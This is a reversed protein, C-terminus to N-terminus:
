IGNVKSINAVAVGNIKSYVTVGNIKKSYGSPPAGEGEFLVMIWSSKSNSLSEMDAYDLYHKYYVSFDTTASFVSATSMSIYDLPSSTEKSYMCMTQITTSNVIIDAVGLAYAASVTSFGGALVLFNGATSVTTTTTARTEPTITINQDITATDADAYGSLSFGDERFCLVRTEGWYGGASSERIAEVEILRTAGGTLSQRTGFSACCQQNANIGERCYYGTTTTLLPYYTGVVSLRSIASYSTSNSAISMAGLVFYNGTSSPTFNVRAGADSYSTPLTSNVNVGNYQLDLATENDTYDWAVIKAQSIYATTGSSAYYKIVCDFNSTKGTVQQFFFVNYKELNDYKPSYYFTEILSGDVYLEIYTYGTENTNNKATASFFVIYKKGTPSSVTHTVKTAPSGSTNTTSSESVSETTTFEM